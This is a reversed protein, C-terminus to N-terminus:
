EGTCRFLDQSQAVAVFHLQLNDVARVACYGCLSVASCGCFAWGAAGEVPALELVISFRVYLVAAYLQKERMNEPTTTQHDKSLRHWARSEGATIAGEASQL